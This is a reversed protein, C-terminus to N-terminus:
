KAVITSFLEMAKKSAGNEAKKKSKGKASAIKKKDIKLTVEFTDTQFLKKTVFEIKKKNKQGWILVQSKYDEDIQDLKEISVYKKLIHKTVAKKTIDYGYDLYIAGIIAEFTNGLINKHGNHHKVVKIWKRLDLKDGLENLHERSVLKSTLKSLEGESKKPFKKYLFTAIIGSLVADGVFELRENSLEKSISKHTFAQEYLAIDKPKVNFKDSIFAKLGKEKAPSFLKRLRKM